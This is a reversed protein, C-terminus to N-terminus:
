FSVNDGETANLLKRVTNTQSVKRSSDNPKCIEDFELVNTSDQIRCSVKLSDAIRCDGNVKHSAAIRCDDNVKLSATIRYEGNVQKTVM